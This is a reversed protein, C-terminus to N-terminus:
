INNKKSRNESITLPQTNKYHFSGGKSLPLIHDIEWYEGYNKWNMKDTFQSELHNKYTEYSCGLLCEIKDTFYGQKLAINMYVITNHRLKFEPSSEKKKKVYERRQKKYADLKESDLRMKDYRERWNKDYNKQYSSIKRYERQYANNCEKCKNNSYHSKNIKCTTCLKMDM